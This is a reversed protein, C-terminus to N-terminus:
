QNLFGVRSVRLKYKGPDLEKLEFRGGTDTPVSISHTQDEVSQLHVRAKRLAEGGALKVVTGAISCQDKKPAATPAKPTQATSRSALLGGLLVIPFLVCPGKM